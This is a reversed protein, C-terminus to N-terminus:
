LTGCGLLSEFCNSENLEKSVLHSSYTGGAENFREADNERGMKWQAIMGRFLVLRSTKAIFVCITKQSRPVSKMNNLYAEPKLNGTNEVLIINSLTYHKMWYCVLFQSVISLPSLSFLFSIFVFFFPTSVAFASFPHCFFSNPFALTFSIFSLALCLM